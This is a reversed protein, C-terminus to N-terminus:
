ASINLGTIDMKRSEVIEAAKKRFQPYKNVTDVAKATIEAAKFDSVKKGAKVLAQKVKEKALSIAEKEVPDTSGGSKRAGFEYGVLYENLSEQMQVKTKKDEVAKKVVPAQNNRVNEKLLQNLAAAENPKCVHGEKFPLPISLVVSQIGVDERPTDKTIQM